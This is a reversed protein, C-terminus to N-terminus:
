PRDLSDLDSRTDVDHAERGTVAVLMRPLTLLLKAPRNVSPRPLAQRVAAARYAALLPNAHGSDDQAVVAAVDPPQARLTAVLDVAAAGAYPMDGAVVLVLGTAVCRLGAEVGALPGGGPPDESAWTVPRVTPREIGVVVVPWRSPLSGLLHDLVTTGRLPAALKDSGFRRSTGGALVVATVDDDDVVGTHPAGASV